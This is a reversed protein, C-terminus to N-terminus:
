ILTLVFSRLGNHPMLPAELLSDSSGHVLVMVAIMTM